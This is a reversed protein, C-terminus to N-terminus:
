CRVGGKTFLCRKIKQIERCCKCRKPKSLGKAKYFSSEGVSFLFAEGCDRCYITEDMGKGKAASPSQEASIDVSVRVPQVSMPIAAAIGIIPTFTRKQEMRELIMECNDEMYKAWGM